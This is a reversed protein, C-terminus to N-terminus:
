FFSSTSTHHTQFTGIDTNMNHVKIIGHLSRIQELPDKHEENNSYYLLKSDELEKHFSEGAKRTPLASSMRYHVNRNVTPKRAAIPLKGRSLSQM